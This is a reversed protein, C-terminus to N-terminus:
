CKQIGDLMENRKAADSANMNFFEAKVGSALIDSLTKEAIPMTAARDFHVGFINMGRRALEIATAGGFRSSSGLILAWSNDAFQKSTMPHHEGAM